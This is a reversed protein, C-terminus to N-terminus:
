LIHQLIDVCHTTFGRGPDPQQLAREVQQDEAGQECAGTVAVRDGFVNLPGRFVQQLDLGTREVRGDM